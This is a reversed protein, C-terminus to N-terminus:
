KGGGSNGFINLLMKVSNVTESSLNIKKEDINKSIKGRETQILELAQESTLGEINKTLMDVMDKIHNLELQEGRKQLEEKAQEDAAEKTNGAPSIESLNLRHIIIGLSSISHNGKGQSLEEVVERLEKVSESLALVEEPNLEERFKKELKEWSKGWKAEEIKNPEIKPNSFYKILTATPILSNIESINEGLLTKALIAKAEGNASVAEEWDQPGENNSRIWTRIRESAIDKLISKVGKEGGSNLFSKLNKTDPSFIISMDVQISANDLTIFTDKPVDFNIRTVNIPIVDFIIKNLPLFRIGEDLVEDTRKGFFTVVGCHPPNSPISVLGHYIFLASLAIIAALAFWIVGTLSNVIVGILIISTFVVLTILSRRM